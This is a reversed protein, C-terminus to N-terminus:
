TSSHACYLDALDPKMIESFYTSNKTYSQLMITWTLQHGEGQLLARYGVGTNKGPSDWPCLFGAPSCNM